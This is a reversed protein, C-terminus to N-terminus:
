LEMGAKGGKRVGDGRGEEWFRHNMRGSQAELVFESEKIRYLVDCLIQTETTPKSCKAHYGTM